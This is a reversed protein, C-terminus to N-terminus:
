VTYQTMGSEPVLLRVGDDVTLSLRAGVTCVRGFSSGNNPPLTVVRWCRENRGRPAGMTGVDFSATRTFNRATFFCQPSAPGTSNPPGFCCGKALCSARTIGEYGCDVKEVMRLACSVTPTGDANWAAIVDASFRLVYVGPQAADLRGVFSKGRLHTQLSLAANFSPKPAHPTSASVFPARCVGFRCERNSADDCDDVYDYFISVNVAALANTLWQRALWKAQLGEDSLAPKPCNTATKSPLCTTWGWEGSLIRASPELARLRAYDALVSEPPGARYSHVSLADFTELAGLSSLAELYNWTFNTGFGAVAPGVLFTKGLQGASARAAHLAFALAAYESANGHLGAGGWFAHTNPENWLEWIVSLEGPKAPYRAMATVAFKCFAANCRDTHPQQAKGRFDCGLAPNGYDLIFWPLVGQERLDDHLADMGSWDYVGVTREVAAWSFDDRAVTAGRAVQKVLAPRQEVPIRGYHINLGWLLPLPDSLSPVGIMIILNMM